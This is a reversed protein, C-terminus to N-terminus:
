LIYTNLIDTDNIYRYAFDDKWCLLRSNDRYKLNCSEKTLTGYFFCFNGNIINKEEEQIIYLMFYALLHDQKFRYSFM